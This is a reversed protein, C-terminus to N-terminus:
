PRSSGNRKYASPDKQFGNNSKWGAPKRDQYVPPAAQVPVAPVVPAVVEVVKSQNFNYKTVFKVKFGNVVKITKGTIDLHEKIADIGALVVYRGEHITLVPKKFKDGWSFALMDEHIEKGPEIYTDSAKTMAQELLKLDFEKGLFRITKPIVKDTM